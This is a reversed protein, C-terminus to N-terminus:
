GTPDGCEPLDKGLGFAFDRSPSDEDETKKIFSLEFYRSETTGIAQNAMVTLYNGRLTYQYWCDNEIYLGRKALVRNGHVEIITNGKENEHWGNQPINWEM